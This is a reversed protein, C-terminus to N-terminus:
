KTRISLNACHRACARCLFFSISFFPLIKLFKEVALKKPFDNEANALATRASRGYVASTRVQQRAASFRADSNEKGTPRAPTVAVVVNTQM